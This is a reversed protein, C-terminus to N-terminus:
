GRRARIWDMIAKSVEAERGQFSHYHGGGCIHGEPTGGRITTLNEGAYRQIAMYSTTPCADNENHVFLIPTAITDYPIRFASAFQGWPDSSTMSGTHISGSIEKGLNVALWRSSMTGKSHGMLFFRTIGHDSKLRAMVARVDDAHQRSTRYDDLCTTARNSQDTAGWQDTPCDMMVLATRAQLYDTLRKAVFMSLNKRGDSAASLQAIGHGGRFFLVATDAAGQKMVVARQYVPNGDKKRDLQVQILTDQQAHAYPIALFLGALLLWFTRM